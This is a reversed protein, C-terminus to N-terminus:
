SPRRGSRNRVETGGDRSEEAAKIGQAFSMFDGGKGNPDADKYKKKLSAYQVLAKFTDGAEDLSMVSDKDNSAKAIQKLLHEAAKDMLDFFSM